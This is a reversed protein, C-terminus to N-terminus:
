ARLRRHQQAGLLGRTDAHPMPRGFLYGQIKHCGLERMREFDEPTEVGEATITMRFSNALAVIARIITVTEHRHASERVFSGDIKLTHFITKNLYGLSSYGTGFDDLAIGVGLTRVRRLVDLSGDGDAMFVSETVELELRYPKLQSSTLAENVINPLAPIVLQRPSINVSVYIDDPWHAADRCATHIVWEGIEAILGTEEAIPIFLGPPVMGRTPHRWRLLAEFGIIAQTEASVIPQYFLTLEERKLAQRLDQELKLRDEADRQMRPDFHRFTGRGQSKAEYLALDAKLLLEDVATGDVPAFACGISLGIRIEQTEVLVPEAIAAILKLGLDEVINRSQGDSIVIAFEDGGIRTVQGSAGVIRTLREAVTRLVVDGVPHGFTDNVPKFGDLDLFLIACPKGSREATDVAHGFLERMRQRNPLGTLVDISAMHTLRDQTRRAETVDAGVGRFGLYGGDRGIIPTGSLSVWRMGGATPVQLEVGTFPLRAVLAQGLRGDLGFTVALSQGVLQQTSRGFLSCIRPSVYTFLNAADVEWLWGAGQSEYEALLDAIKGRETRAEAVDQMQRALVHEITLCAILIVGLYGGLMVVLLSLSGLGSAYAAYLLAGGFIAAWVTAALPVMALLFAGAMMTALAGGVIIQVGGPQDAIAFLALSGWLGALMAAEGVAWYGSRQIPGAHISAARRRARLVVWHAIILLGAWGFLLIPAHTIQLAWFVSLACIVSLVALWPATRWLADSRPSEADGARARGAIMARVPSGPPVDATISKHFM